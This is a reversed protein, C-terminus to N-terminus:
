CSEFALFPAFPHRLSIGRKRINGMSILTNAHEAGFLMKGMDLVQVQLQEAHNWKGQDLYINALNGMSIITYSNHSGIVLLKKTMNLVQVQLREAQNRKGQNLYISALDGMSMLTHLHNAGLVKKRMDLM